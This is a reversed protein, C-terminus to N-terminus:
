RGEAKAIAADAVSLKELVVPSALTDRLGDYSAVMAKLAILLEPAAAILWANAQSEEFTIERASSGLESFTLGGRYSAVNPECVTAGGAEAVIFDQPDSGIVVRWPAPTHPVIRAM